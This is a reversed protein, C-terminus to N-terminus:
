ASNHAHCGIGNGRCKSKVPRKDGTGIGNLMHRDRQVAPNRFEGTVHDAFSRIVDGSRLTKIHPRDGRIGGFQSYLQLPGATPSIRKDINATADPRRRKFAPEAAVPHANERDFHVVCRSDTM